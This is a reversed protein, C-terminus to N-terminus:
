RLSSQLNICYRHSNMFLLITCRLLLVISDNYSYLLLYQPKQALCARTAKNNPMNYRVINPTKGKMWELQSSTSKYGGALFKEENHNSFEFIELSESM